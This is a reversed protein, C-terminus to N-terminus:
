HLINTQCHILIKFEDYFVNKGKSPLATSMIQKLISLIIKPRPASINIFM